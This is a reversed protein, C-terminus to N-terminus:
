TSSGSDGSGTDGSGTDAVSRVVRKIQDITYNNGGMSLLAPSSTM